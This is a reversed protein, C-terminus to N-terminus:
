KHVRRYNESWLVATLKKSKLLVETESMMPFLVHLAEHIVIEMHKKSKLRPDIEIIGSYSDTQGWAKERGLKRSVVKIKPIKKSM